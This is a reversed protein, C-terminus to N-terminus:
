DGISCTAGFAGAVGVAGALEPSSAEVIIKRPATPVSMPAAADGAPRSPTQPAAPKTAPARRPSTPMTPSAAAASQNLASSFYHGLDQTNGFRNRARLGSAKEAETLLSFRSTNGF